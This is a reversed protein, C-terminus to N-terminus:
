VCMCMCVYVHVHTSMLRRGDCWAEIRCGRAETVAPSEGNQTGRYWIRREGARREPETEEEEEEFAAHAEQRVRGTLRVCHARLLLHPWCTGFAALM